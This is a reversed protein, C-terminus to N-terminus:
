ATETSHKKRYASQFREQMDQSDLHEGLRRATFKEIVKSLLPINSVPRYNKLVDQALSPKKILPRVLAEKLNNPIEAENFPPLRPNAFTDYVQFFIFLHSSRCFQGIFSHSLRDRSSISYDGGDNLQLPYLVM